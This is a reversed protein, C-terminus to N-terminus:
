WRCACPSSHGVPPWLIWPHHGDEAQYRERGREKGVVGRKRKIERSFLIQIISKLM